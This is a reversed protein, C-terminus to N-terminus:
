HYIGHVKYDEESMDNLLSKYNNVDYYFRNSMFYSLNVNMREHLMAIKLARFTQFSVIFYLSVYLLAAGM